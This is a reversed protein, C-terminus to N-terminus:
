SKSKDLVSEIENSQIMPLKPECEHLYTKMYRCFSVKHPYFHYIPSTSDIMLWRYEQPLLHYSQPPLVFLLQFLPTDPKKNEFEIADYNIEFHEILQEVSPAYLYNYYWSWDQCEKFYYQTTWLLGEMYNQTIELLNQHDKPKIHFLHYYYKTRWENTGQNIKYVVKKNKLLPYFQIKELELELDKLKNRNYYRKKEYNQKEQLVYNDEQKLLESFLDKLFGFNLEGDCILCEKRKRILMIYIEKLREIGGNKINIGPLSPLFDNGILFCLVIYDNILHTQTLQSIGIQNSLEQFLHHKLLDIDLLLLTQKDVKGFHVAERLLYISQIDSVMSLMILDADLGYILYQDEDNSQLNKKLYQIIKHEGEGPIDADSIIVHQIQPFTLNHLFVSLEKMFLTGPTIANTDWQYSKTQNFKTLVKKQKQKEYVSRYRRKRQQTMKARPAVGDIAIYLLTTPKTKQLLQTLQQQIEKFFLSFLQKENQITQTKQQKLVEHVCPHILGKFDLFLHTVQKQNKQLHTIINTFQNTITKFYLPIGM